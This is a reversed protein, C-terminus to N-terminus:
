TFRCAHHEGGHMALGVVILQDRALYFLETFNTTEARFRCGLIIWPKSARNPKGPARNLDYEKLIEMKM